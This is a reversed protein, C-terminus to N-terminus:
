GNVMSLEGNVKLHGNEHGNQLHWIEFLDDKLHSASYRRMKKEQAVPDIKLALAKHMNEAYLVPDRTEAVYGDVGQDVIDKASSFDSVCLPVCCGKAELLSTSWGEGNPFSGLLFVDAANLYKAITEPKQFGLLKVNNEIHHEKIFAEVEARSGGDGLWYYISDPKTKLFETFGEMNLKWGKIWHLRSTSVVITKDLPLGLEKRMAIKDRYKFIHMKIRTPFQIIDGDKLVGNSNRTVKSINERDAAALVFEAKKLAPYFYPDYIYKILKGFWYRSSNLPNEIGSFNYTLHPLNWDKIAVLVEPSCCMAYDFSFEMIKRKHKKLYYFTSLRRPVLPKGTIKEAKHLAFYNYIKGNFEKKVWKGVPTDDTSIGILYLEDGFVKVMQEAFSLQGGIPFDVYNCAEIFLIRM